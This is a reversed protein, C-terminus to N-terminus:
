PRFIAENYIGNKGAVAGFFLFFFLIFPGQHVDPACKVTGSM